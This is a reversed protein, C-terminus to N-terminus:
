KTVVGRYLYGHTRPTKELYFEDIRAASFPQATVLARMDRDLHCGGALRMQLGNLRHQWRRVSAHPSIGHELFLFRGGAKLVRYV